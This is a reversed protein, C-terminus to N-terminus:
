TNLSAHQAGIQKALDSARQQTEKSSNETGLYCTFLLKGCLEKASNPVYESNEDSALRRVEQLVQEDGNQIADYILRCMSYVICAVSASDRGGSLPLFFGGQKSRKLYDWLWCAPGLAIEEESSPMKPVIVSSHPVFFDNKLSLSFDAHIRPYATSTTASMRSSRIQNRHTRVDEVDVVATVVEIEDLSFQKGRSVVKGNLAVTPNGDYYLRDGDCGRQNSYVYVGGHKETTALIMTNLARASKRLEHHSASMNCFIEVGDLGMTAHAANATWLEECMDCGICTDLTSIVADGIPVFDQGTIGRIFRPLFFDETAMLKRWPCFWRSERYNNTDCMAQKPRILLIKTNLIVVTCNYGTNKHMVPMGLFILIDQTVPDSLIEGLAQWSHLFTDSELFHDQCGYGPVALESSVYLRSGQSKALAISQLIREKNGQFEMAWQNLATASVIVKRGM